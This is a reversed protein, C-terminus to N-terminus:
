ETQVTTVIVKEKLLNPLTTLSLKPEDGETISVTGEPYLEQIKKALWTKGSGGPGSITVFLTDENKETYM